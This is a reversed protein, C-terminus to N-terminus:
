HEQAQCSEAKAYASNCARKRDYAKRRSFDKMWNSFLADRAKSPKPLFCSKCLVESTEIERFIMDVCYAGCSACYLGALVRRYEISYLSM